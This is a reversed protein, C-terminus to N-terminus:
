NGGTDRATLSQYTKLAAPSLRNGALNNTQKIILVADSPDSADTRDNLIKMTLEGSPFSIVGLFGASGVSTQGQGGTLLFYQKGHELALEAARRLLFQSVRDRSTYGNGQFRIQYSNESLQTENFGGTFGTSHYSTACGLLTVALSAILTCLRM